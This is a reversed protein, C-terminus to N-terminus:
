LVSIFFDGDRTHYLIAIADRDRARIEFAASILDIVSGTRKPDDAAFGYRGLTCLDAYLAADTVGHAPVSPVVAQSHVLFIPDRSALLKRFYFFRLEGTHCDLRKVTSDPRRSMRLILDRLASALCIRSRAGRFADSLRTGKTEASILSWILSKSYRKM